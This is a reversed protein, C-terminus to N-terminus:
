FSYDYYEDRVGIMVTRGDKAIKWRGDKRLTVTYTGGNPNPTYAYSQSDSMGHDDIREANDVQIEIRKGKPHVGIITCAHRDSWGLITAGDGVKPTEPITQDQILNILSGYQMINEKRRTSAFSPAHRAGPPKIPFQETMSQISLTEGGRPLRIEKYDAFRYRGDYVPFVTQGIWEPSVDRARMELPFYLVLMTPQSFMPDANRIFLKGEREVLTYESM